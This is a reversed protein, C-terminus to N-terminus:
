IFPSTRPVIWLFLNGTTNVRPSKDRTQNQSSSAPALGGYHSCSIVQRPSVFFPKTRLVLPLSLVGTTHVLPSKGCPYSFPYNVRLSKTRPLLRLSLAGSTPVRSVQRPSAFIPLKCSPIQDNTTFGEYMSWAYVKNLRSNVSYSLFALVKSFLVFVFCFQQAFIINCRM